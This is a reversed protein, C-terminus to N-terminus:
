GRASTKVVRAGNKGVPVIRGLPVDWGVVQEIEPKSIHDPLLRCTIGSSLSLQRQGDEVGQIIGM